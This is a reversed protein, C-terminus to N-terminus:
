QGVSIRLKKAVRAGTNTNVCDLGYESLGFTSLVVPESSNSYKAGSWAGSAECKQTNVANWGLRISEGTKGEYQEIEAGNVSFKITPTLDVVEVNLNDSASYVGNSCTLKFALKGAKLNDIEKDGNLGVSEGNIDCQKANKSEWRFKVGSSGMLAKLDDQIINVFVPFEQPTTVVPQLNTGTSQITQTQQTSQQIQQTTTNQPQIVEAQKAPQSAQQRLLEVQRLLAQLQAQLTLVIDSAAKPKEVLLTSTGTEKLAEDRSGKIQGALLENARARTLAGFYGTPSIGEREQFKKISRVTLSFVNGTIPGSYLEEDALFEQLQTAESDNQMGFYLSKTFTEEQASVLSYAFLVAFLAFTFLIKKMYSPISKNLPSMFGGALSSKRRGRGKRSTVIGLARVLLKISPIPNKGYRTSISRPNPM